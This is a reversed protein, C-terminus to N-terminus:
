SYKDSECVIKRGNKDFIAFHLINLRQLIFQISTVLVQLGYKVSRFFNISSAGSGYNCPSSIEGIRYGFYVAQALIQNDFIFDDSNELIPMNLLVDRTFARYGTHYESLKQGLCINEFLTLIRNAFYKYKPMGGKLANGSLIRSGLVIDFLGSSLMGAMAMILKPPYQYDPHLMIIIDAGRKLAESYCTKQNAGYGKNNDHTFISMKMKKAEAITEDSSHDDTLIISDVIDKPIDNYTKQLTKAANYAPLVVFIKKGTLPM